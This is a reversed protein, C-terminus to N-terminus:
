FWYCNGRVGDLGLFSGMKGSRVVRHNLVWFKLARKM